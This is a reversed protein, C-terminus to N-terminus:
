GNLVNKVDISKLHLFKTIQHFYDKLGPYFADKACLHKKLLDISHDVQKEYTSGQLISLYNVREVQDNQIAAREFWTPECSNTDKCFRSTVKEL